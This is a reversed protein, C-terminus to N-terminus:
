APRAQGEPSDLAQAASGYLRQRERMVAGILPKPLAGYQRPTMGMFQRFDRVFQAQDHYHSDIAGIWGLSPDLVFHSLSRMFRQRRLLLKPPFGFDRRCVREITRQSAGVRDVLQGVTATEPDVLASHIAVIREKDLVPEAIRGLFHRDIRGLEADLDPREGFISRALPLFGAFAPHSNGDVAANAFDAAPVGVFKAWGLPLLGVGWMRSSGITFRVLESSPGTVPFSTEALRVGSRTEAEPWTGCHFRLNAWEPLLYDTIQESEAVSWQVHYFTTFYRRLPASPPFFQVEVESNLTM